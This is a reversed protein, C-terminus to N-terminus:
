LEGPCFDLKSSAIFEHGFESPGELNTNFFLSLVPRCDGYLEIQKSKSLRWVRISGSSKTKPGMAWQLNVQRM